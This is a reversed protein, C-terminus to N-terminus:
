GRRGQGRVQAMLAEAVAITRESLVASREARENASAIQRDKEAAMERYSSGSVWRPKEGTGSLLILIVFTVISGGNIIASWDM